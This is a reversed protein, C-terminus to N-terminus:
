YRVLSIFIACWFAYMAKENIVREICLLFVDIRKDDSKLAKKLCMWRIPDNLNLYEIIEYLEDVSRNELIKFIVEEEHYM